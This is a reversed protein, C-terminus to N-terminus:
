EEEDSKREVKVSDIKWESDDLTLTFKVQREGTEPEGNIRTGSLVAPGSASANVQGAEIDLRSFDVELTRVWVNARAALQVLEKRGRLPNSLEPIQASVNEDFLDAFQGNLRAARVVANEPEEGVNIVTSLRELQERIREEPTKRSFLAYGVIGIGAVVGAAALWRKDM